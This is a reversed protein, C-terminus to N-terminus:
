IKNFLLNTRDVLSRWIGGKSLNELAILPASAIPKDNLVVNIQGIIEGKKIPAKLHPAFTMTTTPKKNSGLPLTAYLAKALGVKIQPRQGFWIRITALNVEANYLKRSEFFRFGYTLLKQSDQARL